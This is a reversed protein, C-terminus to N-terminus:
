QYLVLTVVAPWESNCIFEGSILMRVSAVKVAM